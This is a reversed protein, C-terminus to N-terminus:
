LNCRKKQRAGHRAFFFFQTVAIKLFYKGGARSVQCVGPQCRCVEFACAGASVTAPSEFYTCNERFSAGCTGSVPYSSSFPMMKKGRVCM